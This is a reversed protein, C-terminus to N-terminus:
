VDVGSLKTMLDLCSVIRDIAVVTTYVLYLVQNHMCKRCVSLSCWACQHRAVLEDFSSDCAACTTAAAVSEEEEGRSGFVTGSSSPPPSPPRPGGVSTPSEEGEDLGSGPSLRPSPASRGLGEGGGGGDDGYDLDNNNDNELDDDGENGAGRGVGVLPFNESNEGHFGAALINEGICGALAARADPTLSLSMRPLEVKVRMVKEERQKSSDSKEGPSDGGGAPEEHVANLGGPGGLPGASSSVERSRTDTGSGGGSSGSGGGSGSGSSDGTGTPRYGEGQPKADNGDGVGDGDGGDDGGAAVLLASELAELPLSAADVGGGGGGDSGEGSPSVTTVIVRLDAPDRLIPRWRDVGGWGVAEKAEARAGEKGECNGIAHDGTTHDSSFGDTTVPFLPRSARGCDLSFEEGFSVETGPAHLVM